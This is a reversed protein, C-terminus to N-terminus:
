KEGSVITLEDTKQLWELMQRESEFWTHQRSGWLRQVALTRGGPGNGNLVLRIRFLATTTM